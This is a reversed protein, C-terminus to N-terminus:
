AEPRHVGHDLYRHGIQSFSDLRVTIRPPKNLHKILKEKDLYVIKPDKDKMWEM